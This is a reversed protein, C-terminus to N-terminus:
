LTGTSTNNSLMEINILAIGVNVNNSYSLTYDTDKIGEVLNGEMGRWSDLRVSAIVHTWNSM